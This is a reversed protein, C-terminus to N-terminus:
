KSRDGYIFQVGLIECAKELLVHAAWASFDPNRPNEKKAADYVMKKEAENVYVRLALERLEDHKANSAQKKRPM